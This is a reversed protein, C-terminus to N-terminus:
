NIRVLEQLKVSAERSTKRAQETVKTSYILATLKVQGAHTITWEKVDNVAHHTAEVATSHFETLRPPCQVKSCILPIYLFLAMWLALNPALLSLINGTKSRPRRAGAAATSTTTTTTTTTTTRSKKGPTVPLPTDLARQMVKKDISSRRSTSAPPAKASASKRGAPKKAPPPSPAANPDKKQLNLILKGLLEDAKRFFLLRRTFLQSNREV